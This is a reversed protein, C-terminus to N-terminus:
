QPLDKLLRASWPTAPKRWVVFRPSTFSTSARRNGSIPPPSAGPRRLARKAHHDGYQAPGKDPELPSVSVHTFDIGKYYLFCGVKRVYPSTAYGYLKVTTM